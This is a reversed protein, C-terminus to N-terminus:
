PLLLKSRIGKNRVRRVRANKNTQTQWPGAKRLPQQYDAGVPSGPPDGTDKYPCVWKTPGVYTRKSCQDSRSGPQVRVESREPFNNSYGKNWVCCANATHANECPCAHVNRMSPMCAGKDSPIQEVHQLGCPLFYCELVHVGEPLWVTLVQTRSSGLHTQSGSCVADCHFSSSNKLSKPPSFGRFTLCFLLQPLSHMVVPNHKLVTYHAM